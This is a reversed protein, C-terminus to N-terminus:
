GTARAAAWSDWWGGIAAGDCAVPTFLPAAFREWQPWYRSSVSTLVPLGADLAAAFAPVLGSGSEAELKGFKSLVVLDCGRAIDECVALGAQVVAAPLLNCGSAACGRAEFLTFDQGRTLSRLSVAKHPEAAADDFIEIVGAIRSRTGQAAVFAALCRQVTRPDDGSVVAIPLQGSLM